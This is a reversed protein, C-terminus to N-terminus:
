RMNIVSCTERLRRVIRQGSLCDFDKKANFHGELKKLDLNSSIIVPLCNDYRYSIIDWLIDLGWETLREAGIDDLVLIYAKKINELNSKIANDSIRQRELNLMEAVRIFLGDIRRSLIEKLVAISLSTKGTGPDGCIYLSNKEEPNRFNELFYKIADRGEKNLKGKFNKLEWKKYREPILSKGLRQRLHIFPLCECAVAEPYCGRVDQLVYGTDKCKQCHYEPEGYIVYDPKSIENFPNAIESLPKLEAEFKEKNEMAKLEEREQEMYEAYISAITWGATM